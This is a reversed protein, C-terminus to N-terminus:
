PRQTAFSFPSHIANAGQCPHQANTNFTPFMLTEQSISTSPHQCWVCDRYPHINQVNWMEYVTGNGKPISLHMTGNDNVIDVTYPGKYKPIGYKREQHQSIM